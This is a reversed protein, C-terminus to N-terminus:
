ASKGFRRPRQLFFLNDSHNILKEIYPTKDVYLYDDERIKKFPYTVTAIRMFLEDEMRWRKPHLPRRPHQPPYFVPRRFLSSFVLKVGASFTGATKFDRFLM